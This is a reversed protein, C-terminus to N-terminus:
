RAARGNAIGHLAGSCRGPSSNAYMVDFMVCMVACMVCMVACVVCMVAFMVCRVACMVCMVVCMVCMVCMVVCMVGRQLQSGVQSFGALVVRSMGGVQAALDTM